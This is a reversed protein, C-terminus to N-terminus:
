TFLSALFNRIFPAKNVKVLMDIYRSSLLPQAGNSIVLDTAGLATTTKEQEIAHNNVRMRPASGLIFSM